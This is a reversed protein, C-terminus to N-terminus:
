NGPPIFNFFAFIRPKSEKPMNHEASSNPMSLLSKSGSCRLPMKMKGKSVGTPTSTLGTNPNSSTTKSISKVALRLSQKLINPNALSAAARSFVSNFFGLKFTASFAAPFIPRIASTSISVGSKHLLNAIRTKFFIM